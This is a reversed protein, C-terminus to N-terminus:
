VQKEKLTDPKSAYYLSLQHLCYVLDKKLSIFERDLADHKAIFVYDYGPKACVALILRCLARLRRKIRNRIVANGQRKTVIYGIRIQNDNLFRDPTPCAQLTFGKAM